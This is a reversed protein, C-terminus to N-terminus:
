QEQPPFRRGEIRIWDRSGPDLEVRVWGMVPTGFSEIRTVGGAPGGSDPDRMPQDVRFTHTDGHVAVVPRRFARASEALQRRFERYGDRPGGETGREWGPNAHFFLFLAAANEKRAQRFAKDLWARNAAMRERFEATPEEGRGRNNNGGPLNLTAFLYPGIRWSQNERVAPFRPDASQRRVPIPRRGLSSEGSFFLGRLKGLREAPDHGGASERRCDTWENDGPTYILAHRSAAFWDRREQFLADSCPSAASKFDGVHVIFALEEADLSAMMNRFLPEDLAFYPTDGVVAFAFPRVDAARALGSLLLAAALLAVAGRM